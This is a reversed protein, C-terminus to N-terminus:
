ADGWDILTLAHRTPLARVTGGTVALAAGAWLSSLGFGTAVEYGCRLGRANM